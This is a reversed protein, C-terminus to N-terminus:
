LKIRAQLYSMQVVVSRVISGAIKSVKARRMVSHIVGAQVRNLCDPEQLGVPLCRLTDWVVLGSHLVRAHLGREGPLSAGSSSLGNGRSSCVSSQSFLQDLSAAYKQRLWLGPTM